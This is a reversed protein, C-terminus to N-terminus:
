QDEKGAVRAEKMARCFRKCVDKPLKADKAAQIALHFNLARNGAGDQLDIGDRCIMAMQFQQRIQTIHDKSILQGTLIDSCKVSVYRSKSRKDDESDSESSPPPEEGRKQKKASVSKKAPPPSVEDARGTDKDVHRAKAKTRGSKESVPSSHARKRSAPLPERKSEFGATGATASDADSGSDDGAPVPAGGGGGASRGPTSHQSVQV